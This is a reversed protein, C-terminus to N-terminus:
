IFYNKEMLLVRIIKRKRFDKSLFPVMGKDNPNIKFCSIYNLDSVKGSIVGCVFCHINGYKITDGVENYLDQDKM